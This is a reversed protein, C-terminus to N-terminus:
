MNIYWIAGIIVMITNHDGKKRGRDGFKVLMKDMVQGIPEGIFESESSLSCCQISGSRDSGPIFSACGCSAVLMKYLPLSSVFLRLM